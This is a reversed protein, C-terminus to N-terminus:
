SLISAVLVHGAVGDKEEPQLDFMVPGHGDEGLEVVLQAFEEDLFFEEGLPKWRRAEKVVKPTIDTVPSEPESPETTEPSPTFEMEDM